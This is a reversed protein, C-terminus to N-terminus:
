SLFNKLDHENEGCFRMEMCDKNFIYCWFAEPQFFSKSYTFFSAKEIWCTLHFHWNTLDFYLLEWTTRKINFTDQNIALCELLLQVFVQCCLFTLPELFIDNNTICLLISESKNLFLMIYNQFLHISWSEAMFTKV